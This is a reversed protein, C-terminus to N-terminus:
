AAGAALIRSPAVPEDTGFLRIARSPADTM